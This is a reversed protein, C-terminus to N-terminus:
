SAAAMADPPAVRTVHLLLKEAVSTVARTFAGRGVTTGNWAADVVRSDTAVFTVDHVPVTSTIEAFIEGRRFRATPARNVVVFLPVSPALTGADVIWALLRGIGTPSADCVAVILDADALLTRTAAYRGRGLATQVDELHGAVDAVVVDTEEALRHAV